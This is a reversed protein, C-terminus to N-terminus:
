IWLDTPPGYRPNFAAEVGPSGCFSHECLVQGLAGCYTEYRHCRRMCHPVIEIQGAFMHEFSEEVAIDIAVRWPYDVFVDVAHEFFIHAALGICHLGSLYRQRGLSDLEEKTAGDLPDRFVFQPAPKPAHKRAKAAKPAPKAAAKAARKVARKDYAARQQALSRARVAVLDFTFPFAAAVLDRYRVFLQRGHNRVAKWCDASLPPPCLLLRGYEIVDYLFLRLDLPLPALWELLLANNMRLLCKVEFIRADHPPRRTLRKAIADDPMERFNPNFGGCRPLLQELHLAVDDLGRKKLIRCVDALVCTVGNKILHRLPPYYVAPRDLARLNTVRKPQCRPVRRIDHIESMSLLCSTCSRTRAWSLPTATDFGSATGASPVDFVQWFAALDHAHIMSTLTQGPFAHLFHAVAFKDFKGFAAGIVSVTKIAAISMSVLGAVKVAATTFRVTCLPKASTDIYLVMPLDVAAAPLLRKDTMGRDGFWAFPNAMGRQPHRRSSSIVLSPTFPRENRSEPPTIRRVLLDAYTSMGESPDFPRDELLQDRRHAVLATPLPSVFLCCPRLASKADVQAKRAFVQIPGLLQAAWNRRMRCMGDFSVRTSQCFRRLPMESAFWARMQRYFVDVDDVRLRRARLVAPNVDVARSSTEWTSDSGESSDAEGLYADDFSSASSSGDSLMGLSSADDLDSSPMGWPLVHGWTPMVFCPASSLAEYDHGFLCDDPVDILVSLQPRSDVISLVYASFAPPPTSSMWPICSICGYQDVFVSTLAARFRHATGRHYFVMYSGVLSIPTGLVSNSLLALVDRCPPSSPIQLLHRGATQRARDAVVAGFSAPRAAAAPAGLPRLSLCPNTDAAVPMAAATPSVPRAAAAPAGLPRLSLCPNTDAAVPMAAATPSVAGDPAAAAAAKAAAKAAATAAAAAAVKILVRDPRIVCLQNGVPLRPGAVPVLPLLQSVARRVGSYPRASTGGPCDERLFARIRRATFDVPVFGHKAIFLVFACLAWGCDRNSHGQHPVQLKVLAGIAGFATLWRSEVDYRESPQYGGLTDIVYGVGGHVLTLLWHDRTASSRPLLLVDSAQRFGAKAMADRYHRDIKRAAALDYGDVAFERFPLFSEATFVRQVGDLHVDARMGHSIHSVLTCVGLVVEDDADLLPLRLDNFRELLNAGSLKDGVGCVRVKGADRLDVDRLDVDGDVDLVDAPLPSRPVPAPTTQVPVATMLWRHVKENVDCTRRPTAPSDGNPPASPTTM